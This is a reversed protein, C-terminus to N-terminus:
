LLPRASEVLVLRHGALDRATGHSAHEVRHGRADRHRSTRVHSGLDALLYRRRRARGRVSTTGRGRRLQRHSARRPM